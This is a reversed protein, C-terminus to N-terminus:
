TSLAAATRFTFCVFAHIGTCYNATVGFSCIRRYAWASIETKHRNHDTTAILLETALRKVSVEAGLCKPVWIQHRLTGAGSVEAGTGFHGFRKSCLVIYRLIAVIQM